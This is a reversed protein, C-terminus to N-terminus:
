AAGGLAAANEAIGRMYGARMANVAITVLGKADAVAHARELGDEIEAIVGDADKVLRERRALEQEAVGVRAQALRRVNVRERRAEIEAFVPKTKREVQIVAGLEMLALAVAFLLDHFDRAGALRLAFFSLGLLVGAIVAGRHRSAVKAPPGLDAQSPPLLGQVIAMSIAFAAAIGALWKMQPGLGTLLDHCTPAFSFTVWLTTPHEVLAPVTPYDGPAPTEALAQRAAHLKNAAGDRDLERQERMAEQEKLRRLLNDLAPQSIAEAKARAKSEALAELAKLVANDPTRRGSKRSTGYGHDACERALASRVEEVQSIRRAVAPTRPPDPPPTPEPPCQEPTRSPRFFALLRQLLNM